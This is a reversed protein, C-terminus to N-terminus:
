KTKKFDIKSKNSLLINYLQQEYQEQLAIFEPDELAKIISDKQNRYNAIKNMLTDRYLQSIDEKKIFATIVAYTNHDIRDFIVRVKYDKVECVGAHENNVTNFRKVNKFTGDKISDFLGKFRDFYELPMREIEDIVRINGGSTPIFILRNETDSQALLEEEPENSIETILDMKTSHLLLMENFDSLEQITLNSKESEILEKISKQERLIEAKIRLLIKHYSPHKKSPLIERIKDKLTLKDNPIALLQSYYYDIEEEFDKDIKGQIKEPVPISKKEILNENSKETEKSKDAKKKAARKLRYIERRMLSATKCNDNLGDKFADLGLEDIDLIKIKM